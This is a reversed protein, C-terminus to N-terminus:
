NNTKSYCENCINLEDSWTIGNDTYVEPIDNNYNWCIYCIMSDGRNFMELLNNEQYNTEM